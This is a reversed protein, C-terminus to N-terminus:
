KIVENSIFRRAREINGSTFHKGYERYGEYSRSIYERLGIPTGDLLQFTFGGELNLREALEPYIPWTATKALNDVPMECDDSFSIGALSLAQKAVDFIFDIKPHNISHMFANGKSLFRDADFGLKRFGQSLATVSQAYTDFYGLSAYSFANFLREVRYEPINELFSAAVIASHYVNPAPVMQGNVSFYHCDPHLGPFIIYPFVFVPQGSSKLSETSFPGFREDHPQTFILDFKTTVYGQDTGALILRDHLVEVNAGTLTAISTGFGIAQCNGVVGIRLSM